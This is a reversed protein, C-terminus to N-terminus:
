GAGAPLGLGRTRVWVLIASHITCALRGHQFGVAEWLESCFLFFPLPDVLHWWGTAQLLSPPVKPTPLVGAGGGGVYADRQPLYMHLPFAEWLLVCFLFSRCGGGVEAAVDLLHLTGSTDGVVVSRGDGVWLMKNLARDSVHM